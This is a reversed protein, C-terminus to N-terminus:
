PAPNLAVRVTAPFQYRDSATLPDPLNVPRSAQVSLVWADGVFTKELSTLLAWADRALDFAAVSGVAWCEVLVVPAEVATALPGGSVVGVRVFSAPRPDPVRTGVSVPLSDLAMVVAKEVDVLVGIM